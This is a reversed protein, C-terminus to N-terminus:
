KAQLDDNAVVARLVACRSNERVVRAPMRLGDLQKGAVRVDPGVEIKEADVIGAVAVIDGDEFPVIIPQRSVLEGLLQEEEFIMGVEGTAAMANKMDVTAFLYEPGKRFRRLRAVIEGGQRPAVRKPGTRDQISSLQPCQRFPHFDDWAAIPWQMQE